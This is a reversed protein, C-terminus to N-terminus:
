FFKKLFIFRQGMSQDIYSLRAWNDSLMEGHGPIPKYTTWDPTPPSRELSLLFHNQTPLIVTTGLQAVTVFCGRSLTKSHFNMEWLRLAWLEPILIDASETGPTPDVVEYLPPLFSSKKSVIM